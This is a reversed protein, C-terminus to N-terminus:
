CMLRRLFKCHLVEIGPAKHCGWFESSYNLISSVLSDFVKCKQKMSFEYNNFISFLRHMSKSAHEAINKKLEIGAVM